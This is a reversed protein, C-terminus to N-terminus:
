KGEDQEEAKKLKKGFSSNKKIRVIQNKWLKSYGKSNKNYTYLGVVAYDGQKDSRVKYVFPKVKQGKYKTPVVVKVRGGIYGSSANLNYAKKKM